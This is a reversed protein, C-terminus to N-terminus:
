FGMGIWKQSLGSFDNRIYLFILDEFYTSLVVEDALLWKGRNNVQISDICYEMLNSYWALGVKSKRFYKAAQKRHKNFNDVFDSDFVNGIYTQSNKIKPCLYVSGDIEVSVKDLCCNCMYESICPREILNVIHAISDTYINESGEVFSMQSEMFKLLREGHCVYPQQYTKTGKIRSVVIPVGPFVKTIEKYEEANFLENGTITAEIASLVGYEYLIKAGRITDSYAGDNSCYRKFINNTSENGDM